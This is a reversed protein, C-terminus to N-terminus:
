DKCLEIDQVAPLSALLTQWGVARRTLGPLDVESGSSQYCSLRLVAIAPLLKTDSCTNIAHLTKPGISGDITLSIGSVSASAVQIQKAFGEGPNVLCDLIYSCMAQSSLNDLSFPLFYKNLYISKAILLAPAVPASWFSVPLGPNYKEAIGFRTRGGADTTVKGTLGTDEWTMVYQFAPDFQASM